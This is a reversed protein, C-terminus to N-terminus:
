ETEEGPIHDNEVTYRIEGTSDFTEALTGVAQLASFWGREFFMIAFFQEETLPVGDLRELSVDDTIPDKILSVEIDFDYLMMATLYSSMQDDLASIVAKLSEPQNM